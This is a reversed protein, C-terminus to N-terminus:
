NVVDFDESNVGLQTYGGVNWALRFKYTGPELDAPIQYLYSSVNAAINSSIPINEQSGQKYMNMILKDPINDIWTITIQSGVNYEQTGNLANPNIFEISPKVITFLDSEGSVSGDVATIKVKYDNGDQIYQPITFTHNGDNKTNLTHTHALTNGKFLEIKVNGIKCSSSWNYDYPQGKFLTANLAPDSITITSPAEDSTFNFQFEDMAHKNDWELLIKDGASVAIDDAISGHKYLGCDHDNRGSRVIFELESNTNLCSGKWVTLRTKEGCSNVSITGDCVAMYSYWVSHQNYLYNGNGYAPAPADIIIASNTKISFPTECSYGQPLEPPVLSACSDIMAEFNAMQNIEFNPLLEIDERATFKIASGMPATGDSRITVDAQHLGNTILNSISLSDDCFQYDMTLTQWVGRGFTGARLFKYKEVIELDSIEVKPLNLDYAMWDTMTADKFYVGAAVTGVYLHDNTDEDCVLATFVVNEPFGDGKIDVWTKGGDNSELISDTKTMWLRNENNPDIELWNVSGRTSDKPEWDVGANRSKFLYKDTKAYLVNPNSKSIDLYRVVSSSLAPNDFDTWTQGKDTSKWVRDYGVYLTNPNQEDLVLPTVFSGSVGTIWPGILNYSMTRGGDYTANFKGYQSSFYFTNHDSPDIANDTGDGFGMFSWSQNYLATGNDQAGVLTAYPDTEANSIRYYQAVELGNNHAKWSQGYNQTSWIGGDTALYLKDNFFHADWHDVHVCRIQDCTFKEWSLGGNESKAMSVAGLFIFNPNSPDVTMSRFGPSYSYINPVTSVYNFTNGEDNSKYFESIIEGSERYENWLYVLDPNAESIGIRSKNSTSKFDFTRTWVKSALDYYYFGANEASNAVAYIRKFNNKSYHMHRFTLDSLPPDGWDIGGDISRFTKNNTTVIVDNENEPHVIIDYITSHPFNTSTFSTLNWTIGGDLSKILGYSRLYGDNGTGAYLVNKDSPSYVIHSIGLNPLLDDNAKYWADGMNDSIWIGGTSAGAILRNPNEPHKAITTIRGIGHKAGVNHTRAPSKNPGLSVWPVIINKHRKMNAKKKKDLTVLEEIPTPEILFGDKDIRKKMQYLMRAYQKYEGGVQQLDRQNWYENFEKELQLVNVGQTHFKEHWNQSYCPCMLIFLLCCANVIKM